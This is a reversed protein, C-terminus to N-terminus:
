EQGRASRPHVRAQTLNADDIKTQGDVVIRALDSRFLNSGTLDAGGLKAKQLIANMLNAGLLSAGTLDARMLLAGRAVAHYFNSGRLDCESLNAADLNASSFDCRPCTTARLNAGRLSAERLDAGELSTKGVFVANDLTARRFLAGELKTDVFTAKTLHAGTFNAQGLNVELFIAKELSANSLNMRSMDARMVTIQPAVVGTWDAAGFVAEMLDAGALTAGDFRAETLNALALVAESLDAGSLDAGTLDAGGLNAQRLSAKTLKARTLNARALVVQSLNAGTLDAGQLNAGELFAGSLDAGHLGLNSLDAGTLDRQHLSEGAEIATTVFVRLRAADDEAPSVAAPMRHAAQQYLQLIQQEQALLQKGFDPNALEKELDPKSVGSARLKALMEAFAKIKAAAFPKPPGGARKKGEAMMVDYDVGANKCTQRAKEDARALEAGATVESAEVEQRKVELYDGLKDLDDANPPPEEEVPPDALGFNAPDLGLAEIKAKNRAYVKQRFRVGAKERAGETVLKDDIETKEAISAWGLAVEPMLDRDRLPALPDRNDTRDLRQALIRRYHELPKPATPDECAAVLQLVDAADDELVRVVGRYALIAMAPGPLLWVTDLRTPVEKFVEGAETKLNVFARAVMGPLHGELRPAAPNMNEVVFTEDGAFYGKLHQDAPAVNFFSPDMDKAFGPSHNELWDRDYTGVKSFRQPWTVDYAGFGVPVPREGSSTVFNKPDEINPLPHTEGREGQVPSFGKGLPNPAFGAGGFSHAWDVKMESFPVPDTPVGHKWTRDGVVALTKDVTGLQVRVYSVPRPEGKPTFCSGSVLVEGRAKSLGEDLVGQGALEDAVLKWLKVETLLARPAAFPCAVLLTVVWYCGGGNEFTRHLVCLKQPKIVKM